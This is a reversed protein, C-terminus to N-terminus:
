GPEVLLQEFRQVVADLFHRAPLLCDRTSGDGSRPRLQQMAELFPTGIAAITLVGAPTGDLLEAIGGSEPTAIVPLGVALAELAVNPMGEWRSPLLLADAGNFWRWADPSFGKFLVRARIGLMAAQAELAARDPGDGFLLLVTDPPLQAILPLLRDIGKQRTLRGCVVLRLGDGEIRLAPSAAHRVADVDVPNPLQAIHRRDVGILRQMEEAMHQSQCIVRDAKPYLRRYLWRWLGPWRFAQLSTSVTNAERLMLRTDRPLMARFALLGVNIYGLTLVM